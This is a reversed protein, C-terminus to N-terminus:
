RCEHLSLTIFSLTTSPVMIMPMLVTLHVIVLDLSLEINSPSSGAAITRNNKLGRVLVSIVILKVDNYCLGTYQRTTTIYRLLLM